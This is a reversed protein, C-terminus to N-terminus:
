GKGFHRRLSAVVERNIREAVRQEMLKVADSWTGKGDTAGINRKVRAYRDKTIGTKKSTYSGKRRSDGATRAQRGEELVRMPGRSRRDPTVEFETDSKVGFRGKVEIPKKRTWGSMSLDGLDGRVAEEVDKKTQMAVRELRKKAATGDLEKSFGDLKRAFAAFDQAM